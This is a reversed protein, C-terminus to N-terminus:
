ATKAPSPGLRERLERNEKELAALRKEWPQLAERIEEASFRPTIHQQCNWDSAEVRIVFVREIISHGDAAGLKEVWPAAEAGEFVQVRGLIKL